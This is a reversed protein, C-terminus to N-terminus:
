VYYEQTWQLFDDQFYFADRHGITVHIQTLITETFPKNYATLLMRQPMWRFAIECPTGLNSNQIILKFIM